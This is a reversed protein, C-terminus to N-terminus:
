TSMADTDTQATSRKGTREDIEPHRRQALAVDGLRLEVIRFDEIRKVNAQAVCAQEHLKRGVHGALM